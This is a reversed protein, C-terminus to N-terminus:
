GSGLDCGSDAGFQAARGLSVWIVRVASATVPRPGRFGSLLDRRAARYLPNVGQVGRDLHHVLQGEIRDGRSWIAM